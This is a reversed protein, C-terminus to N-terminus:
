QFIKPKNERNQRDPYYRVGSVASAHSSAPGPSPCTAAPYTSGHAGVSGRSETGVHTTAAAATHLCLCQQTETPLRQPDSTTSCQSCAASRGPPQAGRSGLTHPPTPGCPATHGCAAPLRAAWSAAGRATTQLAPLRHTARGGGAAGCLQPSNSLRPARRGPSARPHPPSQPQPERVEQIPSCQHNVSRAAGVLTGNPTRHSM